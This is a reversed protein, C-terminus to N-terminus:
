EHHHQGYAGLEPEFATVEATIQAGLHDSLLHLLVPDPELRLWETALQVPVHRNGLHYAMQLLELPSGARVTLVPEPKAQVRVRTTLAADSLVSGPRLRSGRPFELKVEVGECTTYVRRVQQREAATLNLSMAADGDPAHQSLVLM